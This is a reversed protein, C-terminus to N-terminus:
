INGFKYYVLVLLMGIFIIILLFMVIVVLMVIEIIMGMFYVFLYSFVFVIIFGGGIGLMGVFIGVVFGLILCSVIIVVFLDM